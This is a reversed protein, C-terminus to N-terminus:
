RPALFGSNLMARLNLHISVARKEKMQMFATYASNTREVAKKASKGEVYPDYDAGEMPVNLALFPDRKIAGSVTMGVSRGGRLAMQAVAGVFEKMRYSKDGVIMIWSDSFQNKGNGMLYDLFNYAAMSYMLERWMSDLNLPRGKEGRAMAVNALFFDWYWGQTRGGLIELSDRIMRGLTTTHVSIREMPVGAGSSGKKRSGTKVSIGVNITVGNREIVMTADNKNFTGSLKVGASLAEEVHPDLIKEREVDFIGGTHITKMTGGGTKRLLEMVQADAEVYAKITAIERACGAFGSLYGGLHSIALALNMTANDSLSLNQEKAIRMAAFIRSIQSYYHIMLETVENSPKVHVFRNKAKEAAEKVLTRYRGTSSYHEYNNLIEDVFDPSAKQMYTTLTTFFDSLDDYIEGVHSVVEQAIKLYAAKSVNGKVSTGFTNVYSQLSRKQSDLYIGSTSQSLTALEPNQRMVDAVRDDLEGGIIDGKTIFDYVELMNLDSFRQRFASERILFKEMLSQTLLKTKLIEFNEYHMHGYDKLNREYLFLYRKKEVMGSLVMRIRSSLDANM